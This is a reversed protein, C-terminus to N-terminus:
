REALVNVYPARDLMVLIESRTAPQLEGDEESLVSFTFTHHDLEGLTDSASTNAAVPDTGSLEFLLMLPNGPELLGRMGRVVLGEAGQVDLKIFRPSRRERFFSDLCTKAVEISDRRETSAFIGHDGHHAEDRYLTAHGDNDAVAARVVQVSSYKNRSVNQELVAANGPDPEFAWVAGRPGTCRALELTYVGVNAGIDAVCMGDRVRERVLDLGARELRGTKWLWLALFRDLTHATMRHGRVSVPVKKVPMSLRNLVAALARIAASRNLRQHVQPFM